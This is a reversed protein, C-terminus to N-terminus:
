GSMMGGIREFSDINLLTPANLARHVVYYCCLAKEISWLSRTDVGIYELGFFM